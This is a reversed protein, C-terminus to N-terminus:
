GTLATTNIYLVTIRIVGTGDFNGGVATIVVNNATTFAGTWNATADSNSTSTGSTTGTKNGWRDADSGDGVQYGTTGNSTGLGTTIRTTVGLVFAGAPILNTATVSAAAATANVTTTAQRVALAAGNDFRVKFTASAGSLVEHTEGNSVDNARFLLNGSSMGLRAGDGGSSNTFYYNRNNPIIVEPFSFRGNGTPTITIVGNDNDDGFKIQNTSGSSVERIILNNQNGNNTITSGSDETNGVWRCGSTSAGFTVDVAASIQNGTFVASSLNVSIDGLIRAGITKGGNVGAPSTGSNIALKGFQGGSIVHSGTDTLLIGGTAQSTYIGEIEHYLTATGSVGLEIDYGSATADTTAYIDCTGKIQTHGGTSKVARGSTWRSGCNILSFNEGTANVNDGTYTPSSADGRFNLNICTVNDGSSTFLVGNANKTIRAVGNPCVFSQLDLTQTLGSARYTKGAGFLIQLAGSDIAAQIAATDDTTGDGVAGFQEVWVWRRLEAQVSTSSAGTGSQTFTIDDSPLGILAGDTITYTSFDDGSVVLDYEGAAAYFEFYGRADTTIPNTKSTTGAQNSYITSNSGSQQVAVSAGERPRGKEDLVTNWYKQM